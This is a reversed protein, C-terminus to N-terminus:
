VINYLTKIETVLQDSRESSLIYKKNETTIRIMNRRDKVLSISNDMTNGIFGFVGKSGYTMTLNSFELKEVNIIDNMPIEIQGINKKLIIIKKELIIKDLSNAYFYFVFGIILMSLIVGGILGFTKDMTVLILVVLTLLILISITAVKVFVSSKSLYINMKGKKKLARCREQKVCTAHLLSM